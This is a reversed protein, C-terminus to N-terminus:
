APISFSSNKLSLVMISNPSALFIVSSITREISYRETRASRCAKSHQDCRPMTRRFAAISRSRTERYTHSTLNRDQLLDLWVQENALWGLAYAERLAAKPSRTEIGERALHRQIM